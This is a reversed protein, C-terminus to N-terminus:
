DNSSGGSLLFSFGLSVKVNEVIKNTGRVTFARHFLHNPGDRQERKCTNGRFIAVRQNITLISLPVELAVSVNEMM